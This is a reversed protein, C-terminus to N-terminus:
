NLYILKVKIKSYDQLTGIDMNKFHEQQSMEFTSIILVTARVLVLGDPLDGIERYTLGSRSM